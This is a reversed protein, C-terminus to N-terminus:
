KIEISLADKVLAWSGTENFNIFRDAALILEKGATEKVAGVVVTKGRRRAEEVAPIFDSDGSILVAVDYINSYAGVVMDVALLVDVEKQRKRKGRIAGFKCEVDNMKEIEEWYREITKVENDETQDPIADYVIIRRSLVSDMKSSYGGLERIARHIYEICSKPNPYKIGIKKAEERFYAGDIFSFSHFISLPPDFPGLLNGM